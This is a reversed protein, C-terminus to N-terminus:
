AEDEEDWAPEEAPQPEAVWGAALVLRSTRHVALFGFPRDFHVAVSKVRYRPKPAGGAAVGFATVSSARFGNAGFAATGSQQGSGIVLPEATSIGSFHGTPPEPDTAAALGFVEPRALLDHDARVSFAPVFAWLYDGRDMSRTWAIDLGPGPRGTPLLDATVRPVTGALIGLGAGLVAGPSAGEEGLLLHVDIDNRGLVRLETVPGAPTDAVAARDLLSTVRSLFAFPRGAWPGSEPGGFSDHFPRLWDTRVTLASALVLRTDRDLAVPMSEVEGGTNRSAWADLRRRDQVADGSLAGHVDLPLGALWTPEPRLLDSTWLGVAASSGPLKRLTDVLERAHEAAEGSRMGLAQELEAAAPGHAGAALFALLPWVGTPMFVTSGGDALEAWRAALRNVARVAAIGSM